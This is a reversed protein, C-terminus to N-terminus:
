GVKGKFLLHFMKSLSLFLHGMKETILVLEEDFLFDSVYDVIGTAGYYPIDGSVDFREGSNLPVRKGDLNESITKIRKSAM